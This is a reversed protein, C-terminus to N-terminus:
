ERHEDDSTKRKMAIQRAMSMKKPPKPDDPHLPDDPEIPIKLESSNVNSDTWGNQYTTAKEDHHRPKDFQEWLLIIALVVASYFLGREVHWQFNNIYTPLSLIIILLGCIVFVFLMIKKASQRMTRVRLIFRGPQRPNNRAKLHWFATVLFIPTAVLLIQQAARDVPDVYGIATFYYVVNGGTSMVLANFDEGLYTDMRVFLWLPKGLLLAASSYEKIQEFQDQNLRRANKAEAIFTPAVFDPIRFQNSTLPMSVLCVRCESPIGVVSSNCLCRRQDSSGNHPLRLDMSLISEGADGKENSSIGMPTQSSYRRGTPNPATFNLLLVFCIIISIFSAVLIIRRIHRM